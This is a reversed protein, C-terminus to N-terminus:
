QSTKNSEVNFFGSGFYVVVLVVMIVKLATFCFQLADALSQAAPDFGPDQAGRPQATHEHDHDHHHKHAM